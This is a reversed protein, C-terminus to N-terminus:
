RFHRRFASPTYGTQKKFFKTFYTQESFGLRDAISTIRVDAFILLRKAEELLHKHILGLATINIHDKCIQNLHAASVGIQSAYWVVLHHKTFNNKLQKHFEELKLESKTMSLKQAVNTPVLRYIHILLQQLYTVLMADKFRANQVTENSISECVSALMTVESTPLSIVESKNTADLLGMNQSVHTMVTTTISLVYGSSGVIWDFSHVVGDPILLVFPANLTYPQDDLKAEVGGHTVVFLQSINSHRHPKIKWDHKESEVNLEECHLFTRVEDFLSEEYLFHSEVADKFKVMINSIYM